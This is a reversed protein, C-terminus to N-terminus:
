VAHFHCPLRRRLPGTRARRGDGDGVAGFRWRSGDLSYHLGFVDGCRTIRLSCEPGPLLENNADDSWPNTVVSVAAIDGIPSRELCLKAWQSPTARVTLAAADGFGVLEACAHVVATFDGTVQTYLLCANDHPTGHYPRFFDTKAWPVIHLGDADFRWDPPEQFWALGDALQRGHCGAFLDM